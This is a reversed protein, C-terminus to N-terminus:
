IIDNYVMRGIIYKQNDRYYTYEALSSFSNIGFKKYYNSNLNLLETFSLGGYLTSSCPMHIQSISQDNYLAAAKEANMYQALYITNTGDMIVVDYFDHTKEYIDKIYSISISSDYPHTYVSNVDQGLEFEVSTSLSPEVPYIWKANPKIERLTMFLNFIDSIFLVDLAPVLLKINQISLSKALNYVDLYSEPTLLIFIVEQKNIDSMCYVTPGYSNPTQIPQKFLGTYGSINNAM